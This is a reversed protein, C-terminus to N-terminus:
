QSIEKDILQLIDIAFQRNKEFISKIIDKNDRKTLNIRGVWYPDQFFDTKKALIEQNALTTDQSFFNPFVEFLKQYNVGTLEWYDMNLRGYNGEPSSLAHYYGLSMLISDNNVKPNHINNKLYNYGYDYVKYEVAARLGKHLKRFQNVSIEEKLSGLELYETNRDILKLRLNYLSTDRQLDMKILTLAKLTEERENKNDRWEELGFAAIIGIFIALFEFLYKKM